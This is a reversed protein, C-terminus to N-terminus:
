LQNKRIRKLWNGITDDQPALAHAREAEALASQRMGAALFVQALTLRYAAANPVLSVAARAHDLALKLDGKALLLCHAVREHTRATPKGLAARRYAMAADAWQQDKEDRQAQELYGDAANLNARHETEGLRRVLDEREPAITLAVRLANAASQLNGEQVALDAADIYTKVREDRSQAIRAAYTRYLDDTPPSGTPPASRPPADSPAVSRAPPASPAAGAPPISAGLKRALARRRADPDAPTSGSPGAPISGPRSSRDHAPDARLPPVSSRWAPPPAAPGLPPPQSARPIAGDPSAAGAPTPGPAVPASPVSDRRPRPEAPAPPTPPRAPELNSGRGRSRQAEDYEQRTRNRTLVDHAETVRSFLRELKAKFSGLQRGFYRDPHYAAVLQFYATKIEAKSADPRVGLVAYHDLEDLQYFLDLIEQKRDRELDCPEDLEAVDYRAASPHHSVTAADVSEVIPQSWRGSPRRVAETERPRMPAPRESTRHSAVFDVAGLEHLRELAAQVTGVDLGTAVAIDELNVEGDVRSLVFAEKPGIPLRRLDVGVVLQPTRDNARTAPIGV